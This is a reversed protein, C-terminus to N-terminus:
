PVTWASLHMAKGWPVSMQHCSFLLCTLRMYKSLLPIQTISACFLIIYYPRWPESLGLYVSHHIPRSLHAPTLWTCSSPLSNWISWPVHVLPYLSVWLVIWLFDTGAMSSHGAPSRPLPEKQSHWSGVAQLSFAVMALVRGQGQDVQRSRVHLSTISLLRTNACRHLYAMTTRVAIYLAGGLAQGPPPSVPSASASALNIVSKSCQLSASHM